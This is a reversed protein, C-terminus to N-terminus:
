QTVRFLMSRQIRSDDTTGVSRVIVAIRNDGVKGSTDWSLYRSASYDRIVQWQNGTSPGRESFRYEYDGSGGSASATFQVVVGEAQPSRRSSWLTVSTPQEPAPSPTDSPAADITFLMSTQVRSDDTTGVNRALVAIRNDGAKGSTDWSLSRSTSYDRIVQWQNGTSPGRESFRYEYDGSGGSASATFQVVVGEPEPSWRSSSLTVSTPQQPAPSPNDSPAADITFLMSNQINSDDTTGVNRALVAVRNDGVKGSTDWSLSRSASYDRIVQWQNGTSPGIESFRYEYNGSGGSAQATFQVTTGETQPSSPSATLSVSNPQPLTNSVNYVANVTQVTNDQLTIRATITHSGNSLTATDFPSTVFDYPAYLETNRTQGDVSFTVQSIANEPLVFIYKDGSITQNSLDVAGSRDSNNSVVIRYAETHPVSSTANASEESSFGSENGSTDLASVAFYYTQGEVLGDVTYSTVNGVPIPNGYTRSAEGYYVNYSAIDPETNANWRLNVSAAFASTPLILFLSVLTFSILKLFRPLIMNKAVRKTKPATQMFIDRKM